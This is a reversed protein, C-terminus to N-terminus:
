HCSFSFSSELTAALGTREALAPFMDTLHLMIHNIFHDIDSAKLTTKVEVAVFMRKEASTGMIDIERNKGQYTIDLPPSVKEINIGIPALVEVLDGAVLDEVIKGWRNNLGGIQKGLEKIARVASKVEASTAKLQRETKAHLRNYEADREAFLERLEKIESSYQKNKKNAVNSIRIQNGDCRVSVIYVFTACCALNTNTVINELSVM